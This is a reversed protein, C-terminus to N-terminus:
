LVGKHYTKIIKNILRHIFIDVNLTVFNMFNIVKCKVTQIINQRKVLVEDYIKKNNKLCVKLIFKKKKISILKDKSIKNNDVFVVYQNENLYKATIGDYYYVSLDFNNFVYNDYIFNDNNLIKIFEDDTM